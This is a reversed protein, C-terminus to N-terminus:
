WRGQCPALAVWELTDRDPCPAAPPGQCAGTAQGRYPLANLWEWEETWPEQLAPPLFFGHTSLPFGLVCTLQLWMTTTMVQQTAEHRVCEWAEQFGMLFPAVGFPLKWTRRNSWHPVPSTGGAQWDEEEKQAEWPSLTWPCPERIPVGSLCRVETARQYPCLCLM